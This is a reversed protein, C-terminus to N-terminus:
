CWLLYRSLVMIEVPYPDFVKCLQKDKIDVQFSQGVYSMSLNKHISHAKAFDWRYQSHVYGQDPNLRCVQNGWSRLWLTSIWHKDPLKSYIHEFNHAPM